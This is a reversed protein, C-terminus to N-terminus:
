ELEANIQVPEINFVAYIDAISYCLFVPKKYKNSYSNSVAIGIVNGTSNFIPSGSMNDSYNSNFLYGSYGWNEIEGTTKGKGCIIPLYPIGSYGRFYIETGVGIKEAIIPRPNNTIMEGKVLGIALELRKDVAIIEAQLTDGNYDIIKPKRNEPISKMDCVFYGTHDLLLGTTLGKKGFVGIISKDNEADWPTLTKSLNNALTASDTIIKNKLQIPAVKQDESKVDLLTPDVETLFTSIEKSLAKTLTSIFDEKFAFVWSPTSREYASSKPLPNKVIDQLPKTLVVKGTHNTLEVTGSIITKKLAKTGWTSKYISLEELEIKLYFIKALKRNNGHIFENEFLADKLGGRIDRADLAESRNITKASDNTIVTYFEFTNPVIVKELFFQPISDESWANSRSGMLLLLVLLNLSCIKM